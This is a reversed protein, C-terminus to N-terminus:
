ISELRAFGRDRAFSWCLRAQWTHYAIQYGTGTLVTLTELGLAGAKDLAQYFIELIPIGTPTTTIATTDQISFMMIIAFPWATAFGMAITGMIAIPIAREPSAVEKALHTACDLCSFPRNTNILGLIFAM